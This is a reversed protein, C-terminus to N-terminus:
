MGALKLADLIFKRHTISRFFQNNTESLIGMARLKLKDLMSFIEGAMKGKLWGWVQEMPNVEPSYPPQYLLMVNDPLALDKATHFSANDIQMVHFDMQNKESFEKLFQEFGERNMRDGEWFFNEGTKVEVAGYLSYGARKTSTKLVPKVGRRTIRRRLWTKTTLRSEDQVWYRIKGYKELCPKSIEILPNSLNEKFDLVMAPNQNESVPRAVKPSSDLDYKVLRHVTSYAADIGHEEKLWIKIDGYSAFGEKNGLKIVLEEVVEDTIIRSSSRGQYDMRLFGKLGLEKYRKIWNTIVPLSRGLLAAIQKRTTVLGLVYWYLFQLREKKRVDTEIRLLSLLETSTEKVTFNLIRSM